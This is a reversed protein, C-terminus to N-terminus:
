TINGGKIKDFLQLIRKDYFAKREELKLIFEDVEDDPLGDLLDLVKKQRLTVEKPITVVPEDVRMGAEFPTDLYGDPMGYDVELRRAAKEGMGKGNLVQSIYSQDKKPLMKGNFWEKLRLRRIEKIDM